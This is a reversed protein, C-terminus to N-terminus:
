EKVVGRQRKGRVNRVRQKKGGNHKGRAMWAHAPKTDLPWKGAEWWRRGEKRQVGAGKWGGKKWFGGKAVAGDMMGSDSASLACIESRRTARACSFTASPPRGKAQMTACESVPSIRASAALLTRATCLACTPRSRTFVPFPLPSPFFVPGHGTQQQTKSQGQATRQRARFLMSRCLTWKLSLFSILAVARPGSLPLLPFALWVCVCVCLLPVFFCMDGWGM